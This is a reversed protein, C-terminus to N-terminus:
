ERRETLLAIVQEARKPGRIALREYSGDPQPRGVQGNIISGHISLEVYVGDRRYLRDWPGPVNEWHHRHAVPDLRNMVDATRQQVTPPGAM